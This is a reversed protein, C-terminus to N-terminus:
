IRGFVLMGGPESIGPGILLNESELSATILDLNERNDDIVLLKIANLANM